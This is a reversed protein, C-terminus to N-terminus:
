KKMIIINKSTILYKNQEKLFIQKQEYIIIIIYIFFISKGNDLSNQYLVIQNFLLVQHKELLEVRETIRESNQKSEKLEKNISKLLKYM